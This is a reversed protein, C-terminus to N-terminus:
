VAMDPPVDRHAKSELDDLAFSLDLLGHLLGTLKLPGALSPVLVGGRVVDDRV